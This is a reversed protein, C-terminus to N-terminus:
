LGGTERHKKEKLVQKRHTKLRSDNTYFGDGKFVFGVNGILRTLTNTCKPCNRIINRDAISLRVEDKYGCKECVFEYFTM